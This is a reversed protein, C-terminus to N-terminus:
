PPRQCDDDDQPVVLIASRLYPPSKPYVDKEWLNLKGAAVIIPAESSNGKPKWLLNGDEDEEQNLSTNSCLLGLLLTTRVSLDETGSAGNINMGKTITGVTPDSGKGSVTYDQNGHFMKVMTMKGETLAGTKDTCIIADSSLRAEDKNGAIVQEAFSSHRMRHDEREVDPDRSESGFIAEKVEPPNV